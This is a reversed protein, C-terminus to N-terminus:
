QIALPVADSSVNDELIVSMTNTGSKVTNPITVNIQYLGVFNPTLGVFAPTACPPPSFPTEVGFCIQTTGPVKALPSTPSATGSAVSPSTPGLGITYIVITDGVKVPNAPTGTLAGAPTTMIGYGGNYLIFRPVQADIDVYVLNGATGNRVVQVTGNGQNATSADIPVEFNIQSASVYYVPAPVGNVLVQVGGLTTQLPLSSAESPADFTFQNGFVAAIDGQSLPEGGAFTGNNVVGGASAQPPGQAVIELQVPIVISNNVGNSAVTVTGTYTNPSLGSPNATVSFGGTVTSATLWTGSNAATATVSSVTLTGQGANAVAVNDTQSQAGQPITFSLASSSVQAIPQTTVNLAVSIQKNDAALSSGSVTITGNYTNAAMTSAATATVTTVFGGNAVNAATSAKLWTAGSISTTVPGNTTFTVSTSGGPALNLSVNSPVDGGVQVTVYLYQPSDIANPDTFTIVGTYTGAALSGTMFAISVPYCGGRLGCLTVSGVTPVLWPVSSSATLNLTGGGINFTYVTYTYSNSGVDVSVDLSTQVLNLRPAPAASLGTALLLPMFFRVSLTNKLIV